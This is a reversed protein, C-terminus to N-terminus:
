TVTVTLPSNGRVFILQQGSVFLMGSVLATRPRNSPGQVSGKFLIEGVGISNFNADVNVM